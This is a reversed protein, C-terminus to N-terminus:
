ACIISSLCPFVKAAAEDKLIFSFPAKKRELAHLFPELIVSRGRYAAWRMRLVPMAAGLAGHERGGAATQVQAKGM